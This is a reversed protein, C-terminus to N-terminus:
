KFSTDLWIEVLQGQWSLHRTTSKVMTAVLAIRGSDLKFITVLLPKKSIPTSINRKASNKLSIDGHRNKQMLNVIWSVTPGTFMFMIYGVIGDDFVWIFLM